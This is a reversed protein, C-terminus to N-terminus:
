VKALVGFGMCGRQECACGMGTRDRTIFPLGEGAQVIHTGGADNDQVAYEDVLLRTNLGEDNADHYWWWGM